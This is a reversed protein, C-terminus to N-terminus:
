GDFMSWLAAGAAAGAAVQRTSAGPRSTRAQPPAAPRPMTPATPKVSPAPRLYDREWPPFAQSLEVGSAKAVLADILVAYAPATIEGAELEAAAEQIAESVGKEVNARNEAWRFLLFRYLPGIQDHSLGWLLLDPRGTSSLRLGCEAFASVSELIPRPAEGTVLEPCAMAAFIVEEAEGDERLVVLSGPIISVLVKAGLYTGGICALPWFAAFSSQRWLNAWTWPVEALASWFEEKGQPGLLYSDRLYGVPGQLRATAARASSLPWAANSKKVSTAVAQLGRVVQEDPTDIGIVFEDGDWVRVSLWANSGECSAKASSVAMLPSLSNISHLQNNATSRISGKVMLGNGDSAVIWDDGGIKFGPFESM